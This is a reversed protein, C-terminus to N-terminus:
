PPWLARPAPPWGGRLPSTAQHRTGRTRRGRTRRGRTRRGTDTAPAAPAEASAPPVPVPQSVPRAVSEQLPARTVREATGPAGTSGAGGSVQEWPATLPDVVTASAMVLTAPEVESAADSEVHSKVASQAEAQAPAEAAVEEVALEAEIPEPDVEPATQRQVLSALADFQADAHVEPAEAQATTEQEPEVETAADLVPQEDGPPYTAGAPWGCLTCRQTGSLLIATCRECPNASQTAPKKARM